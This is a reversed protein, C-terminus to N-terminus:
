NDMLDVIFEKYIKEIWQRHSEKELQQIVLEKYNIFCNLYLLSFPRSIDCEKKLENLNGKILSSAFNVVDNTIEDLGDLYTLLKDIDEVLEDIIKQRQIKLNDRNLNCINITAKGRGLNDVGIIEGTQKFGFFNEVEDIEPHLLMPKENLLENANLKCRETNFENNEIPANQIRQGMIPFQTGKGGSTNCYHCSPLLNTWEYCLWYYGSHNADEKVSKKPRYHEVEPKYEISECYACKNDYIKSLLDQIEYTVVGKRTKKGRYVDDSIKDKGLIGKAIKEWSKQNNRIKEPIVKFKPNNKRNHNSRM